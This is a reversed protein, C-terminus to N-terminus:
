PELDLAELDRRMQELHHPIDGALGLRAAETECKVIRDLVDELVGAVVDLVSDKDVCGQCYIGHLGDGADDYIGAVESEIYPRAWNISGVVEGALMLEGSTRIEIEAM